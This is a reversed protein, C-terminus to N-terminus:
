SHYINWNAKLSIPRMKFAFQFLSKPEILPRGQGDWCVMQMARDKADAMRFAEVFVHPIFGLRQPAGDVAALLNRGHILARTKQM